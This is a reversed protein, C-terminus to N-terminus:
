SMNAVEASRTGTATLPTIPQQMTESGEAFTGSHEVYSSALFFDNTPEDKCGPANPADIIVVEGKFMLPVRDKTSEQFHQRLSAHCPQPYPAQVILVM